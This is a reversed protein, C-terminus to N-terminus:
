NCAVTMGYRNCMENTYPVGYVGAYMRRCNTIEFDRRLCHPYNGGTSNKKGCAMILLTLTFVLFLIKM